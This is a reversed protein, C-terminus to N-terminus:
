QKNQLFAKREEFEQEDIEGRAFREQLIEISSGEQKEVASSNGKKTAQKMTFLVIGYIILGVAILWFIMNLIMGGGMMSMM